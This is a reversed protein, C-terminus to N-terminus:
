LSSPSDFLSFLFQRISDSIAGIPLSTFCLLFIQGEGNQVGAHGINTKSLANEALILTCYPLIRQVPALVRISRFLVRDFDVGMCSPHCRQCLVGLGQLEETALLVKNHSPVRNHHDCWKSLSDVLMILPTLLTLFFLTLFLLHSSPPKLTSQMRSLSSCQVSASVNGM